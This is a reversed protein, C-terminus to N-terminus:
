HNRIRFKTRKHANIFLLKLSLANFYIGLSKMFNQDRIDYKM